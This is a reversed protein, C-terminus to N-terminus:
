GDPDALISRLREALEPIFRDPWTDDILGVDIMDRIHVRDKIRFSTLKMRVLRELPLIRYGEGVDWPEPEPNPALDTPPVREGAFLVHVADRAKAAPGDLFADYRESRQHLFGAAELSARASPLDARRILIDVDPTNRACSEDIRSVWAAVAHGGVVAYPIAAAELAATSRRLRDEVKEVARVMRDLSLPALEPPM